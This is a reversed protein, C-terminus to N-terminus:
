ISASNGNTAGTKIAIIWNTNLSKAAFPMKWGVTSFLDLPNDTSNSGPNKVYIKPATFSDLSVMAYAGRGFVYTDYVNAVDTTSTSFGGSLAVTPQNTEVFEVGHLKGIVGREIADSTTYRHADLWESAGFLDMAVQPGIVGRYLAGPFRPAKNLKLTRVAKRIELGTIVDSTHIASTSSVAATTAVLQRTNNASLELRILNDISEGANQGHTDVHEKLDEDISTMKFLSGVNTYTGYEALTATVQTSTMDVASPNTAETLAATILALPTLRNFIISKGQNMAARKLTAGFDHRLEAKARELFVKDYFISMLNSLGTTTSSM